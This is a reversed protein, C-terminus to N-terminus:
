FSCTASSSGFRLSQFPPHRGREEPRWCAARQSEGVALSLAGQRWPVAAFALGVMFLSGPARSRSAQQLTPALRRRFSYVVGRWLTIMVVWVCSPLSLPAFTRIGVSHNPFAASLGATASHQSSVSLFWGQARGPAWGPTM